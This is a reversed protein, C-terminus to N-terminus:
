NQGCTPPPPALRCMYSTVHLVNYMSEPLDDDASGDSTPPPPPTHPPPHNRRRRLCLILLVIMVVARPAVIIAPVVLVCATCQMHTYADYYFYVTYM